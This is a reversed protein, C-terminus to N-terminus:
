EATPSGAGSGSTTSRPAPQQDAPLGAAVRSQVLAVLEARRNMPYESAKAAPGFRIVVDGPRVVWDGKRMVRATGSISVPVVPVGAEIAMTFAGTKFRRMRGDPSRTGEPFVCLPLGAKLNRGGAEMSEVAAERDARDVPIFQARRMSTGLIPIRFVEQKILITARRPISAVLLPGDVNSVHNGTIVCAGPPIKELGEVHVRIGGIRSAIRVAGMSAGYMAEPNGTLLTWLFLWPLVLLICLSVFLVILLTRIM